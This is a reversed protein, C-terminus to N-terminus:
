YFTPPLGARRYAEISEHFAAIADVAGIMQQEDASLTGGAQQFHLLVMAARALPPARAPDRSLFLYRTANALRQRLAHDPRSTDIAARPGAVLFASTMDRALRSIAPVAAQLHALRSTAGAGSLESALRDILQHLRPANQDFFEQAAYFRRYTAEVREGPTSVEGPRPEPVHLAWSTSDRYRDWAQRRFQADSQATSGLEIEMAPTVLNPLGRVPAYAPAVDRMIDGSRAPSVTDNNVIYHNGQSRDIVVLTVHEPMSFLRFEVPLRPTADRATRFVEYAVTLAYVGCDREARGVLDTPFDRMDNALYSPGFDRVNYQTHITYARLYRGILNMLQYLAGLGATDRQQFVSYMTRWVRLRQQLDNFDILTDGFEARIAPEGRLDAQLEIQAYLADTIEQTSQHQYTFESTGTVERPAPLGPLQTVDLSAGNAGFIRLAEGRRPDSVRQVEAIVGEDSGWVYNDRIERYLMLALGSYYAARRTNGAARQEAELSRYFGLIRRMQDYADELLPYHFTARTAHAAPAVNGGGPSLQAERRPGADTVQWSLLQYATGFLQFAREHQDARAAAEAFRIIQEPGGSLGGIGALAPVGGGKTVHGIMWADRTMQLARQAPEMMGQDLLYVSLELAHARQDDLRTMLDLARLAAERANAGM